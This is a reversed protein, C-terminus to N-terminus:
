FSKVDNSLVSWTVATKIEISLWNLYIWHSTLMAGHVDNQQM